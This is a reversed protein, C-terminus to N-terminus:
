LDLSLVPTCSRSCCITMTANSAKEEPSLYDDRHDPVGGLVPTLCTGCLGQECSVLVHVGAQELAQSITQDRRVSVSLGSRVAEVTFEGANEPLAAQAAFHEVHLADEAVGAARADQQVREIFGGPGCIYVRAQPHPRLASHPLPLTGGEDDFHCHVLGAFPSQQFESLFAAHARSRAFYHLSFERDGRWLAHMMAKLPTIGIGGAVLVAPGSGPRLPFNNRPKGVRVRDGTRWGHMAASGGRTRRDLLVGLAYRHTEAPDNCLSYQRIVGETALVDVHSGAEFPPLAAGGPARLDLEVVGDAVMRRGHVVLELELM